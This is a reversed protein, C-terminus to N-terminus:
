ASLSSGGNAEVRMDVEISTTSTSKGSKTENDDNGAIKARKAERGSSMDQVGSEHESHSMASALSRLPRRRSAEPRREFVEAEVDKMIDALPMQRIDHLINDVDYRACNIDDRIGEILLDISIVQKRMSLCSRWVRAVDDCPVKKQEFLPIGVIAEIATSTASPLAPRGPKRKITRRKILGYLEPRGRIFNPHNFSYINAKGRLKQQKFGYTHLQRVFSNFNRGHFHEQALSLPTSAVLPPLRTHTELDRWLSLPTDQIDKRGLSINSLLMCVDDDGM